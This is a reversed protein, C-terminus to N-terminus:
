RGARARASRSRGAAPSRAPPRRRPSTRPGPRPRERSSSGDGSRRPSSRSRPRPPSEPRAGAPRSRARREAEHARALRRAVALERDRRGRLREREAQEVELRGVREAATPEPEETSSRGVGLVPQEPPVERALEVEVVAVDLEPPRARRPRERKGPSGLPELAAEIGLEVRPTPAVVRGADNGVLRLAAEPEAGTAVPDALEAEADVAGLERVRLDAPVLALEETRIGVHLDRDARGREARLPEERRVGDVRGPRERRARRVLLEPGGAPADEVEAVERERLARLHHAHHDLVAEGPQRDGLAVQHAAAVVLDVVRDPPDEERPREREDLPLRQQLRRREGGRGLRHEDDVVLPELEARRRSPDRAALDRPGPAVRAEREAGRDFLPAPVVPQELRPARNRETREREVELDGAAPAERVVDVAERDGVIAPEREHPGRCLREHGLPERVAYPQAPRADGALAHDVRRIPAAICAEGIRAVEIPRREGLGRKAGLIVEARDGRRQQEVILAGDIRALRERRLRDGGAQEAARHAPVRPGEARAELHLVAREGRPRIEEPLAGTEPPRVDAPSEACKSGSGDSRSTAPCRCRSAVRPSPSPATSSM